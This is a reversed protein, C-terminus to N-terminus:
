ELAASLATEGRRQGGVRGGHHDNIAPAYEGMYHM